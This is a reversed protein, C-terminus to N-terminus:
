GREWPALSSHVPTQSMHSLTPHINVRPRSAGHWSILIFAARHSNTAAQAKSRFPYSALSLPPKPTLTNSACFRWLVLALATHPRWCHVGPNLMRPIKTSSFGILTVASTIDAANHLFPVPVLLDPEWHGGRPLTPLEKSGQLSFLFM